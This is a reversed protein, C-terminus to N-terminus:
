QFYEYLLNVITWYGVVTIVMWLSWVAVERWFQSENEPQYIERNEEISLPNQDKEDRAM